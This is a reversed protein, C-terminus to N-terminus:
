NEVVIGDFTDKFWQRADSDNVRQKVGIRSKCRRRRAVRAGPRELVVFYNLGFIGCAPDYKIDLDIHESIGFGFCGNNSFCGHPLEFEKVKLANELLTYAKKGMVTVSTSIKENRRIGWGRITLRSKSTFPKQGTIQELVKMAKDLRNEKPKVCTNISLKAIRITRMPNSDAVM